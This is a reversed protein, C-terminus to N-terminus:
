YLLVLLSLSLSNLTLRVTTVSARSTKTPLTEALDRGSQIGVTARNCPKCHLITKAHTASTYSALSTLRFNIRCCKSPVRIEMLNKTSVVNWRRRHNRQVSPTPARSVMGRARGSPTSGLTVPAALTCARGWQLLPNLSVLLHRPFVYEMLKMLNCPMLASDISHFVISSSPTSLSSSRTFSFAM